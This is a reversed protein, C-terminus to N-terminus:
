QYEGGRECRECEGHGTVTRRSARDPQRDDVLGADLPDEHRPVLQWLEPLLGLEQYSSPLSFSPMNQVSDSAEGPHVPTPRKTIAPLPPTEKRLPKLSSFPNNCVANRILVSQQLRRVLASEVFPVNVFLHSPPSLAASSLVFVLRVPVRHSSSFLFRPLLFVVCGRWEM